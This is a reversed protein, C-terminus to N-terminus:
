EFTHTAKFSVQENNTLTGSFDVFYNSNGNNTITVSGSVIEHISQSQTSLNQTGYAGSAENIGADFFDLVPYTGNVENPVEINLNLIKSEECGSDIALLQFLHVIGDFGNSTLLQGGLMTYAEGNITAISTLESCNSPSPNDDDKSCANFVLGCILLFILKLNTTLKM